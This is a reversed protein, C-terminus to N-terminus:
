RFREPLEDGVCYMTFTGDAVAKGDDGTLVVHAVLVTRGRRVPTATATIRTGPQPARLFHFSADLTVYSRGDLLALLGSCSDALSFLFGGHANGHCNLTDPGVQAEMVAKDMTCSVAHIGNHQGFASDSEFRDAFDEFKLM